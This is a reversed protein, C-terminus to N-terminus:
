SIGLIQRLRQKFNSGNLRRIHRELKWSSPLYFISYCMLTLWDSSSAFTFLFDWCAIFFCFKSYQRFILNCWLWVCKIHDHTHRHKHANNGWLHINHKWHVYHARVQEKPLTHQLWISQCSMHNTPMSSSNWECILTLESVFCINLPTLRTWSRCCCTINRARM